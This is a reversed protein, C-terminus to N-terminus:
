VLHHLGAVYAELLDTPLLEGVPEYDENIVPLCHVKADLMTQVAARLDVGPTVTTLNSTMIDTVPTTALMIRNYNVGTTDRALQLMKFLLDEKSVIGTLKTDSVVLLHTVLKEQFIKFVDSLCTREDVLIPFNNMIDAVRKM